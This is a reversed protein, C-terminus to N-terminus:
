RAALIMKVKVYAWVAFIAWYIFKMTIAFSEKGDSPASLMLVMAAQFLGGPVGPDFFNYMVGPHTMFVILFSVLFGYM